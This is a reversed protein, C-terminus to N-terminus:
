GSSFLGVFFSAIDDTFGFGKLLTVAGLILTLLGILSVLWRQAMRRVTYACFPLSSIAGLAMALTLSLDRLEGKVVYMTVGVLCTLGEALSTIGIVQKGGVGSLVQGGTVLPGYGGASLGKNFSAIIGLVIIKIWSFGFSRNRTLIIIVGVIFIIFGIFLLLAEKSINLAVNVAIVAGVISCAGLVMAVKLGMSKRSLDVNGAQMHSIAGSFGTILQSVLIAPVVKLPDFGFLLLIPTLTTGYGMGLTSDVFECILALLAILFFNPSWLEIIPHLPKLSFLQISILTGFSLVMTIAWVILLKRLIGFRLSLQFRVYLPVRTPADNNDPKVQKM